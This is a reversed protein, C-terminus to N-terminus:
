IKIHQACHILYISQTCKEKSKWTPPRRMKHQWNHTIDFISSFDLQIFHSQISQSQEVHPPAEAAELSEGHNIRLTCSSATCSVITVHIEFLGSFISCKLVKGGLCWCRIKFLSAAGCCRTISAHNENASSKRNWGDNMFSM